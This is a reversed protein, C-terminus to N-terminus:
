SKGKGENCHDDRIRWLTGKKTDELIIGRRALDERIRDAREWDKAQRARDRESLLKVIEEEKIRLRELKRRRQDELFKRPSKKLIGLVNGVERLNRRALSLILSAKPSTALYRNLERITSFLYGLAQATNFDSDMSEIFEHPLEKVREYLDGEERNLITTPAIESTDDEGLIDDIGKLTVYLRELSQAAEQVGRPSFDIPSRYHTQLLFLRIVEPDYEKLVEKITFFNGLSKSM